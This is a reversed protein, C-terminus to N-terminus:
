VLRWRAAVRAPGELLSRPEPAWIQERTMLTDCFLSSSFLERPLLLGVHTQRKRTEDCHLSQTQSRFLFARGTTAKQRVLKVQAYAHVSEQKHM